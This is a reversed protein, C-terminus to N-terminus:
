GLAPRPAAQAGRTGSGTEQGAHPEPAADSQEAPEPDPPPSGPCTADARDPDGSPEPLTGDRLYAALADDACANGNLALGHSLGDEAVVLRSGPFRERMAFAGELPTPGDEAAQLLLAGTAGGDGVPFWSRSEAPWFACPMNYWINNWAHFPAEAHVRDGDALWRDTDGPWRSDTCQTALYAGYAADSEASEGYKGHVEVLGATDGGNSYDALARALEPWARSSYAAPLYASELETPGVKGEAPADALKGRAAYYAASVDERAAGLHFTDDHRAIWGFFNQAARDLSRSQRLNSQYWPRGPHIVSDLVLRRVRDPYRTAYVAGLLSGYSYGLYDIRETGLATRIADLDAASDITTMHELLEGAPEACSAAYDAARRIGAASDADSGPVTDPRPATFHAPDCSIAPSSAGTGRPDFGVVDFHDRLDAPLEAATRSAWGRGPSGPGGPNVVLTGRRDERAAVRSLALEVTGGGAEAGSSRDLPVELRACRMPAGEAAELGSCPGWELPEPEAAAGAPIPM